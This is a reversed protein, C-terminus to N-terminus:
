NALNPLEDRLKMWIKGLENKGDRKAGWGWFNDKPSDEVIKKDGTQRLKKEVYPNQQLKHRLIDQM